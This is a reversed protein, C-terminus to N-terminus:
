ANVWLMSFGAQTGHEGTVITERTFRDESLVVIEGTQPEEHLVFYGDCFPGTRLTGQIAVHSTREAVGEENCGVSRIELEGDPGRTCMGATYGQKRRALRVSEPVLGPSYPIELFVPKDGDKFAIGVTKRTHSASVLFPGFAGSGGLHYQVDDGGSTSQVTRVLDPTLFPTWSGEHYKAASFVAPSLVYMEGSDSHLLMPAGLLYPPLLTVRSVASGNLEALGFEPKKQQDYRIVVVRACDRGCSTAGSYPYLITGLSLWSEELKVHHESELSLPGLGYQKVSLSANNGLTTIVAARGRYIGIGPNSGVGEITSADEQRWVLHNRGRGNSSYFLARM